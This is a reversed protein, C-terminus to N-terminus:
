EALANADLPDGADDPLAEELERPEALARHLEWAGRIPLGHRVEGERIM